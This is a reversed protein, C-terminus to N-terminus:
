NWPSFVKQLRAIKMASKGTLRLGLGIKIEVLKDQRM